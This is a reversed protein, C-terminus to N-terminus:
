TYYATSEGSLFPSFWFVSSQIRSGAFEQYAPQSYLCGPRSPPSRVAPRRGLMPSSVGCPEPRFRGAPLGCPVLGLDRLVFKSFRPNRDSCAGVSCFHLLPLLVGLPPATSRWALASMTLVSSCGVRPTVQRVANRSSKPDCIDKRHRGQWRLSAFFRALLRTCAM